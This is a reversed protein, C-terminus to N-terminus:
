YNIKSLAKLHQGDHGPLSFGKNPHTSQKSLPKQIYLIFPNLNQKREQGAQASPFMLKGRPSPKLIWESPLHPPHALPTLLEKPSELTCGFNPIACSQVMGLLLLKKDQARYSWYFYSFMFVSLCVCVCSSSSSAGSDDPVGSKKTRAQVLFNM